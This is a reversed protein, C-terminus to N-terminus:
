ITYTSPFKFKTLNDYMLCDCLNVHFEEYIWYTYLGCGSSESASQINSLNYYIYICIENFMISM